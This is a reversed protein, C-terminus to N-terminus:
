REGAQELPTNPPPYTVAALREEAAKLTEETWVDVVSGERMYQDTFDQAFALPHYRQGNKGTIEKNRIWLDNIAIHITNSLGLATAVVDRWDGEAVNFVRYLHLAQNKKSQQTDLEGISDLIFDEFFLYIPSEKYRPEDLGRPEPLLQELDCM